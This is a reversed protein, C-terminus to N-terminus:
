IIAWVGESYEWLVEQEELYHLTGSIDGVKAWADDMQLQQLIDDLPVGQPKRESRKNAARARKLGMKIAELIPASLLEDTVPLHCEENEDVDSIEMPEDEVVTTTATSVRSTGELLYSSTDRSSARGGWIQLENVWESEETNWVRTKGENQVISGQKWLKRLADEFLAKAEKRPNRVKRNELKSPSSTSQKTSKSLNEKEQTRRRKKEQRREEALIRHALRHLEPVRRLYSLGFGQQSRWSYYLPSGLPERRLRSPEQLPARGFKDVSRMFHLVYYRFLDRTLDKSRVRDPHSLRLSRAAAATSQTHPRSVSSCVSAQSLRPEEEERCPTLQKPTRCQTTPSGHVIPTAFPIKSLRVRRPTSEDEDEFDCSHGIKKPTAPYPVGSLNPIVFPQSYKTKHLGIVLDSHHAEEMYSCETIEDVKVVAGAMSTYVKGLIIVPVGIAPVLMKPVSLKVKEGKTDLLWGKPDAPQHGEAKVPVKIHPLDCTGVHTGDDVPYGKDEVGVVLGVVKVVKVPVENLWFMDRCPFPIIALGGVERTIWACTTLM